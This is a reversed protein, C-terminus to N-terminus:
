PRPKPLIPRTRVELSTRLTYVACVDGYRIKCHGKEIYETRGSDERGKEEYRQSYPRTPPCPRRRLYIGHVNQYFTRMYVLLSVAIHTVDLHTPGRRTLARTQARTRYQLHQLLVIPCLRAFRSVVRVQLEHLENEKGATLHLHQTSGQRRGARATAGEICELM